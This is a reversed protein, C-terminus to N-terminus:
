ILWIDWIVGVEILHVIILGIHFLLFFIDNFSIRNSRYNTRKKKIDFLRLKSEELIEKSKLKTLRRINFHLKIKKLISLKRYIIGRSVSATITKYKVSM